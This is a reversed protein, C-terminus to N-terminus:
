GWTNGQPNQEFINVSHNFNDRKLLYGLYLGAPGGGVIAIKM